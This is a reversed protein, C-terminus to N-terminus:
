TQLKWTAQTRIMELITHSSPVSSTGLIRSTAMLPVVELTTAQVVEKTRLSILLFRAGWLTRGWYLKIWIINWALPVNPPSHTYGQASPWSDRRQKLGPTWRPGRGHSTFKRGTPIHPLLFFPKGMADQGLLVM